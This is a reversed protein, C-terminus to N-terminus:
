PTNVGRRPPKYGLIYCRTTPHESDYAPREFIEIDTFGATVLASQVQNVSFLSFDLVAGTGLFNDARITETGVHFSLLLTGDCALVRYMERFAPVLQDPSLHVICYFALIGAVSDSAQALRFFDGVTFTLRPFLSTAKAVMEPSLDIGIPTLGLADLQATTHGPGCGLDLVQQGHGISLAFQQLLELDRPKHRLEDIFAEAYAESASDYASRIDNLSQPM